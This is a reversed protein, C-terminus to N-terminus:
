EEDRERERQASPGKVFMEEKQSEFVKRVVEEKENFSAALIDNRLESVMSNKGALFNIENRDDNNIHFTLIELRQNSSAIQSSPHGAPIVFVDGEKLNEEVRKYSVRFEGEGEEREERESRHGREMEREREREREREQEEESESEGGGEERKRQQQVGEPSAIEVRGSGKVVVAIRTSHTEWHPVTMAQPEIRTYAIGIDERDLPGKVLDEDDASIFQGNDNSFRPSKKLLNFPKYEEEESKSKRKWFPINIHDGSVISRKGQELSAFVGENQKSLLRQIQQGETNFAAELTERRFASLISPPNRGGGLYFSEHHRRTLPNPNHLLNVIVLTQSQDNNIAYFISGLPIFHVSGRELQVERLKGGQVWGVKAKGQEVFLLRRASSYHPLMFSNPRICICNLEFNKLDEVLSSSERFIPVARIEGRQTALRRQHEDRKYIYPNRNERTEGYRRSSEIQNGRIVSALCLFVVGLCLVLSLRRVAM